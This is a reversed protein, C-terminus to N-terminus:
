NTIGQLIAVTHNGGASVQSWTTLSGIQVPSSRVAVTGDGLKGSGNSGWMWLTGDTKIAGMQAANVQNSSVSLQSWNTLAGIQVPSSRNINTGDGLTRASTNYGWTWLTNDTKIAGSARDGLSVNSWNTLVGVQIPSSKNIITNDGLQGTGNYGWAYLAGSTSIAATHAGGASVQAWTTLAGVQVPSSRSTINNHGLRGFYGYGWTWLTNDTKVAATHSAGTSVQSWNTLAGIQVPSSVNSTNGTGLRGSNGFGWSWM